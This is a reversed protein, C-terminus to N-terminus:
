GRGRRRHVLYLCGLGVLVLLSPEPVAVVSLVPDMSTVMVTGGSTFGHLFMSAHTGQDLPGSWYLAGYPGNVNSASSTYIRLETGADLPGYSIETVYGMLVSAIGEYDVATVPQMSLVTVRGGVTPRSLTLGAYSGYDEPFSWSDSSPPNWTDFYSYPGNVTGPSATHFRLVTGGYLPGYNATTEWHTIWEEGMEHSEFVSTFPVPVYAPMEIYEPSCVFTVPSSFALPAIGPAMLLVWKFDLMRILSTYPSSMAPNEEIWCM